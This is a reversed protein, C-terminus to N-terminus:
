GAGGTTGTVYALFVGVQSLDVKGIRGNYQRGAGASKEVAKEDATEDLILVGGTELGPKAATERQVQTMVEQASWPSNSMFHQINQGAVNVSRGIHTFNRKEPMRLLGSLYLYAYTSGDRTTTRFREGFRTWFEYLRDGIGQVAELSLGWAQPDHLDEAAAVPCM